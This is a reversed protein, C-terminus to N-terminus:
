QRRSDSRSWGPTPEPSRAPRDPADAGQPSSGGPGARPSRAPSSTPRVAIVPKGREPLDDLVHAALRQIAVQSVADEVGQAHLVGVEDSRFPDSSVKGGSIHQAGAAELRDGVAFDRARASAPHIGGRRVDSAVDGGQQPDGGFSCSESSFGSVTAVM